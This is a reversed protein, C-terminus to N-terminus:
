SISILAASAAPLAFSVSSGSPSLATATHPSFSGDKGVASGQIMVGETSTLAPMTLQTVSARGIRRGADISLSLGQGANKNLAILHLSGNNNDIAYATANAAGSLNVPRLTGLGAMTFLLLGYYEPQVSIVSGSQDCIASYGRTNNGGSHFNVGAAGGSALQFLFDIAWLASGGADSVGPAGGGYFSNAETFRFPLRYQRSVTQLQKLTSALRPDPSLLMDMTSAPSHGDGRYYHQTLQRLQKTQSVTAAAFSATWNSVHNPYGIGPGTLAVNPSQQVIASAFQNWRANTADPGWDNGFFHGGYGDPENGIEIGLLMSGLAKEVYAVEAAASAPTSTALNVGYIVSWGSASLFSALADIDSPSVSGATKGHGNAAWQMHDASNGGIRLNGAGLRRFLEVAGKNQGSFFGTSLGSKEYSFGCFGAAVTGANGSGVSVRAQTNADLGYALNYRDLLSASLLTGAGSLFSRRNMRNSKMDTPMARQIAYRM